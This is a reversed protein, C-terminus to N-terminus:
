LFCIQCKFDDDFEKAPSNILEIEDENTESMNLNPNEVYVELPSIKRQIIQHSKDCNAYSGQLCGFNKCTENIFRLENGICTAMSVQTVPVAPKINTKPYEPADNPIM